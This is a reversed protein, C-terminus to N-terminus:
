AFDFHNHEIFLYVGGWLLTTILTTALFKLGLRPNSPASAAHGLDTTQSVHVGWPLVAFLVVWWICFYVVIGSMLSM